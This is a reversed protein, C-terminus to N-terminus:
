YCVDLALLEDILMSGEVNHKTKETQKGMKRSEQCLKLNRMTSIFSSRKGGLAKETQERTGKGVRFIRKFRASVPGQEAVPGQSKKM